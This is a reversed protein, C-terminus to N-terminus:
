RSIEESDNGQFNTAYAAASFEVISPIARTENVSETQDVSDYLGLFRISLEYPNSQPTGAQHYGNRQILWAVEGAILGGRSMGLIDVKPEAGTAVADWYAASVSEYANRIIGPADQAFAGRDPGHM